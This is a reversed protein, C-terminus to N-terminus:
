GTFPYRTVSATESGAARRNGVTLVLGELDGDGAEAVADADAARRLDRAKGVV